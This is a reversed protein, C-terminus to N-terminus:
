FKKQFLFVICFIVVHDLYDVIEQSRVWSIKGFEKWRQSIEKIYRTSYKCIIWSIKSEWKFLEKCFKQKFNRIESKLIQPLTVALTFLRFLWPVSTECNSPSNAKQNCKRKFLLLFDPIQLKTFFKKYSLYIMRFYKLCISLAMQQILAPMSWFFFGQVKEWLM